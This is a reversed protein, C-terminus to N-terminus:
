NLGNFYDRIKDKIKAPYSSGDVKKYAKDKYESSVDDYSVKNGSWAQGQSSKEKTSSDNGNAQGTLNEDDGMDGNPITVNEATKNAGEKGDKSGYNWGAGGGSGNGGDGGSGNGSGEGNGSQGNQGNNGNGQQGSQGQGNQGQFNNNNGNQGQSQNGVTADKSSNGNQSNNAYDSTTANQSAENLAQSVQAYSDSSYASNKYDEAAQALQSDGTAAALKQLKEYAEEKEKETGKEAKELAEKAEDLLEQEKEQQRQESEEAEKALMEGLTKDQVNKSAMEMKKTIREEAKKLEEYSEAEKLEKKANELQEKVGAVESESLEKMEELEKELKELEAIEEKAEKNVEHRMNALKKAPTDMISCVVFLISLLAFIGFRKWAIRIPFEKRIRFNDIIRMADKKQLVAFADEKEQLYFATSIKEKHGKADAMLAAQMPKPTRKVGWLIGAFFSTILVATAVVIAYYFPVVLALLSIMVAIVM